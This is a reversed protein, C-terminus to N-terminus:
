NMRKKRRLLYKTIKNIENTLVLIATQPYIEGRYLMEKDAVECLDKLTEELREIILVSASMNPEGFLSPGFGRNENVFQKINVAGILIITLWQITM